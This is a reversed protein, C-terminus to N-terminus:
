QYDNMMTFTKQWNPDELRANQALDWRIQDGWYAAAPVNQYCNPGAVDQVTFTSSNDLSPCM